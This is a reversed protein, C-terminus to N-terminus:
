NNTELKTLISIWEYFNYIYIQIYKHIYVCIYIHKHTYVCVTDTVYMCCCARLTFTHRCSKSDKGCPVQVTRQIHKNLGSQHNQVVFFFQQWKKVRLKIQLTFFFRRSGLTVVCQNHLSHHKFWRQPNHWWHHMVLPLTANFCVCHEAGRTTKQSVLM